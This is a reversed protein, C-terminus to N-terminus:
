ARRDKTLRWLLQAVDETAAEEGSEQLALLMDATDPDKKKLLTVVSDIYDVLPAGLVHAIEHVITLERDLDSSLLFKPLVSLTTLRYRYTASMTVDYDMTSDTELRIELTHCWSPLLDLYRDVLPSLAARLERPLEVGWDVRM